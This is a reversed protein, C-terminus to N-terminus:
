DVLKQADRADFSSPYEEAIVKLLADAKAADGAARYALAAKRLYMPTTFDNESLKAAQEFLTAAKAYDKKEVAIEAKIGAAMANVVDGPIGDVASYKDIYKQAADFDGLRLNCAAAYLNALNGAPTNAYEDAVEAFGPATEDGNLALAFDANQQEFRYQAQYLMEQAKNLRPESVLKKYGFIAAALAFIVVIATVVMKSHKEFFNETQVHANQLMQEEPTLVEKAM